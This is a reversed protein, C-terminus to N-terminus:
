HPMKSKNVTLGFGERLNGIPVAEGALAYPLPLIFGKQAQL